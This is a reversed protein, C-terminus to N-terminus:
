EHHAREHEKWLKHFHSKENQILKQPEDFELMRGGGMM